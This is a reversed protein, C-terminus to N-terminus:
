KGHPNDSSRNEDAKGTGVDRYDADSIDPEVKQDLRRITQKQRRAGNVTRTVVWIVAVLLAVAVIVMLVRWILIAM